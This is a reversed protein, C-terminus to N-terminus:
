LAFCKKWFFVKHLDPALSSRFVTGANLLRAFLYRNRSDSTVFTQCPWCLTAAPGRGPGNGVLCCGCGTVKWFSCCNRCCLLIHVHLPIHEKVSASHLDYFCPLATLSWVLHVSELTHLFPIYFLM